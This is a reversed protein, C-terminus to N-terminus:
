PSGQHDVVGSPYISTGTRIANDIELPTSGLHRDGCILPASAVPQASPEDVETQDNGEPQGQDRRDPPAPESAQRQMDDGPEAEGTKDDDM